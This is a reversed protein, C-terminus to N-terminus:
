RARSRLKDFVESEGGNISLSQGHSRICDAPEQHEDLCPVAIARAVASPMDHDRTCNREDAVHYQCGASFLTDARGVKSDEQNDASVVTQKRQYHPDM